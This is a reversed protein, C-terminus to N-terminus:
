TQKNLQETVFHGCMAQLEASIRDFGKALTGFCGSLNSPLPLPGRKNLKLMNSSSFDMGLASQM